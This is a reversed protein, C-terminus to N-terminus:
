EDDIEEIAFKLVVNRGNLVTERIETSVETTFLPQRLFEYILKDMKVIEDETLSYSM